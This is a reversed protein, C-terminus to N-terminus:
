RILNLTGAKKPNMIDQYSMGPWETGNIFKAEAEWFYIGQPAKQGFMMGDWSETPRGKDDLQNTQWVLQGWKNFIRFHWEAIGSGKAKFTRIEDVLSNPMFANPIFLNGPVGLIKVTKSITDTCGSTNTVTLKVKYTGTDPYSHEADFATSSTGDGFDWLYSQTEGDTTNKFTFRYNPYQITLGPSVVFDPNSTAGVQIYKTKQLTNACGFSSYSILSVNYSAKEDTFTHTPNEDTSFRGDGFDWLYAIANTSENKFNVVVSDCTGSFDASFNTTAQPFAKITETTTTDSCGNSATLKVVYTGGKTFTHSITQPSQNGEIITGDGFDYKYFVAGKSNNFFKVTHPACGEYEDGNVVLEPEVTNPTIRIVFESNYSGCDTETILKATVTKAVHTYYTHNVPDNDTTVLTEGDGFDWYYTNKSGKTTNKFAINLPSCGVTKDPSFTTIGASASVNITVVIAEGACGNSNEPVITYTVSETSDGSNTLTELIQNLPKPITNQSNGSIKDSAVSTWTYSLNPLNSTLLISVEKGSCITENSAVASVKPVPKIFATFAFPVGKCGNYHPTILYTVSGEQDPQVCNLIDKINGTGSASFGTANSSSEVEWTFTSGEVIATPKYSIGTGTCITKNVLSTIRNEPNIKILMVDEVLD